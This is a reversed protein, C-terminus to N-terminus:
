KVQQDIWEKFVSVRTWRMIQGYYGSKLLQNVDISTGSCIGILQWKGDVERFLGGGSDGGACIYELPQPTAKGTKNCDKRTPHDFDGILLTEHGNYHMGGITDIINEGAIKTEHPAVGEPKDAIGSVGYGVGVVQANLENYFTNLRAPKVQTLPEELEILALDCSGLTLPNLYYPHIQLNKISMKQGNIVVIFRSALALRQNSTTYSIRTYQDTKITDPRTDTEIFVHAASLLYRDGIFVCSGLAQNDKYVQGVCEFQAQRALNRYSTEPVDHRIIGSFGTLFALLAFGILFTNKWNM